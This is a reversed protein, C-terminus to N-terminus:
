EYRLAEIPNIMAARVAQFSITFVALFMTLMATAVFVMPSIDIRYAFAQLWLDMLYWAVPWAILNAILVLKLFDTTLLKVIGSITAGLTKRIGIEKTRKEAAFSVLGFLGICGIFIALASCYAFIKSLREEAYYLREFEQDLFSFSFPRHPAIKAWENELFALTASMNEPQIRIAINDRFYYRPSIQLILPEIAHYFSKFHFDQVVGIVAGKRTNGEDVHLMAMEKSLAKSFDQGEAWGIKKVAAENLIFAGKADEAIDENFDRGALLQMGFVELFDHDVLMTQVNLESESSIGEAQVPFDMDRKKGPITSSATVATVHPHKLFDLRITEWKLQINEDKVPIVVVHEKNFGLNQNKEFLLQQYILVTGIVLVTSITFQFIVLTNRIPSTRSITKGRSARVGFGGSGIKLSEIPKFASLFFAPYSGALVGVLVVFGALGGILPLNKAYNLDLTKGAIENFIPIFMEVLFLAAIMSVTSYVISEGLFQRILGSRAAGVVKRLGVERARGSSKATAINMFNICAILLIFIAILSFIRVYVVNGTPEIEADLNSHLRIETLPQLSYSRSDVAWDGIHKKILAPFGAEIDVPNKSEPLMVYTYVPPWHWAKDEKAHEIAESDSSFSALFDFKFHSNHPLDEVIGTIKFLDANEVLLTEGVPNRDGFYKRATSRSIVMTFPDRLATGPNGQTLHFSFMSFVTSDAFFFREEEFRTNPDREVVTTAPFFRTVAEITPFETRLAEAMPGHSNALKRLLGDRHEETVVRYLRNANQHYRDYQYEDYVYLAILLCCAMGIALGLVNIFSLLKHKLLNRLAIKIYNVFM